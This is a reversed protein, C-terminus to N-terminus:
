RSWFGRVDAESVSSLLISVSYIIIIFSFLHVDFYSALWGEDNAHEVWKDIATSLAMLFKEEIKKIEEEKEKIQMMKTDNEKMRQEREEVLEKETKRGSSYVYKRASYFPFYNTMPIKVRPVSEAVLAQGSIFVNTDSFTSPLFFNFFILVAIFLFSFLLLFSFLHFIIIKLFM